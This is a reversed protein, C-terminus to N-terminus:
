GFFLLNFHTQLIYVEAHMISLGALSSMVKHYKLPFALSWSKAELHLFHGVRQKCGSTVDDFYNGGGNSYAIFLVM